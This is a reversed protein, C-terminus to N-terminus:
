TPKRPSGRGISRLPEVASPALRAMGSPTPEVRILTKVSTAHSLDVFRKVTVVGAEADVVLAMTADTASDNLRQALQWGLAQDVVRRVDRAGASDGHDSRVMAGIVAYVRDRVEVRLGGRTRSLRVVSREVERRAYVEVDGRSFPPCVCVRDMRDLLDHPFADLVRKRVSDSRASAPDSRTFGVGSDRYVEAGLSTTLIVLTNRLQVEEDNGNVFLGDELPRLLHKYALPHAKDIEELLVVTFARGALYRTLLGRRLEVTPAGRQGFLQDVRWDESHEALSVRVLRQASGSVYDAIELAIRSKGVGPPGAFLLVGLPRSPDCLESKYLALREVVADIAENQGVVRERLRNRLQTASFATDPDVLARPLRMSECVRDTVRAPTVVREGRAAAERVVEDLLLLAKGALRRQPLLRDVYYMLRDIAAPEVTVHQTARVERAEARAIETAVALTPEDVRVVHTVAALSADEAIWSAFGPWAEAVFLAHTDRLAAVLSHEAEVALLVRLDNVFVIPRTAAVEAEHLLSALRLAASADKGFQEDLTRLSVEWIARAGGAIREGAAIRKALGWVIATKGVEPPGVLVPRKGSPSILAAVRSVMADLGYLRPADALSRVLDREVGAPLIPGAVSKSARRKMGSHLMTAVAQARLWLCVARSALSARATCGGVERCKLCEIGGRVIGGRPIEM